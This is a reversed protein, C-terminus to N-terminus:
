MIFREHFEIIERIRELGDLDGREEYILAARDFDSMASQFDSAGVSMVGRKYYVEPLDPHDDPSMIEIVQTLSDHAQQFEGKQMQELAQVSIQHIEEELDENSIENVQTEWECIETLDIVEGSSTTQYCIPNQQALLDGPFLSDLGILSATLVALFLM